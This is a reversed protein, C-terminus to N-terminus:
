NMLLNSEKTEQRVEDDFSDEWQPVHELGGGENKNINYFLSNRFIKPFPYENTSAIRLAASPPKGYKVSGLIRFVRNRTYVGTDVFCVKPSSSSRIEINENTTDEEGSDGARPMVTPLPQPKNFVFLHHIFTYTILIM